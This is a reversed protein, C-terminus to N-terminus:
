KLLIGYIRYFYTLIGVKVKTGSIGSIGRILYQRTLTGDPTQHITGFILLGGPTSM